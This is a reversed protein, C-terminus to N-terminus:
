APHIGLYLKKMDGSNRLKEAPGQAVVRGTQFIYAYDACSLAEDVHQEVLLVTMGANRVAVIAEFIKEVLLPAIGLSPEDLMLFQPGSMLARAIALMQQEGGSLTGATQQLREKLRPFLSFVYDLREERYRPDKRTVAGILLNELVSMRGFIHKGEPTLAVGRSVVRHAGIGTINQERFFISGSQPRLVSAITKLLTTKGAGNSGLAAVIQGQAVTLTVGSLAPSEGYVVFLDNVRLM